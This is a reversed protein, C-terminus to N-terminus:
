SSAELEVRVPPSWIADPHERTAVEVVEDDLMNIGIRVLVTREDNVYTKM